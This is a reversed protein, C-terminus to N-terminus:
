PSLLSSERVRPRQRDDRPYQVDVDRGDDEGSGSGEAEADITSAGVEGVQQRPLCIPERRAHAIGDQGEDAGGDGLGGPVVAEGHVPRVGEAPQPQLPGLARGRRLRRPSRPPVGGVLRLRPSIKAFEAAQVGFNLVKLVDIMAWCHDQASSDSDLELTWDRTTTDLLAVNGPLPAYSITLVSRLSSVLVSEAACRCSREHGM